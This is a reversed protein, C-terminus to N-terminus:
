GGGMGATSGGIVRRCHLAGCTCTFSLGAGDTEYDSTIEEGAAIARIAVDMFARVETNNDCSHNVYREPAQVIFCSDADYPHLYVGAEGSHDRRRGAPVRQSTDWRLVVEGPSFARLAYVGSRHIPSERIEVDM